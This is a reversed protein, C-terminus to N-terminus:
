TLIRRAGHYSSKFVTVLQVHDGTANVMNGNQDLTFSGDRTYALTGDPGPAADYGAQYLAAEVPRLPAVNLFMRVRAGLELVTADSTIQAVTVTVANSGSDSVIVKDVQAPTMGGGVEQVAAV